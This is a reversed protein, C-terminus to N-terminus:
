QLEHRDIPMSGIDEDTKATQILVSRNLDLVKGGPFEVISQPQQSGTNKMEAATKNGMYTYCLAYM